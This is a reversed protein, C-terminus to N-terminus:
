TGHVLSLEESIRFGSSAMVIILGVKCTFLSLCLPSSADAWLEAPAGGCFTAGSTVKKAGVSQAERASFSQTVLEAGAKGMGAECSPSEWM